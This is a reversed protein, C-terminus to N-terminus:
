FVQTPKLDCRLNKCHATQLNTRAHSQLQRLYLFAHPLPVDKIVGHTLARHGTNKNRKVTNHHVPHLHM